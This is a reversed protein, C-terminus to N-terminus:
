ELQNSNTCKYHSLLIVRIYPTTHEKHSNQGDHHATAYHQKNNLSNQQVFHKNDKTSEAELCLHVTLNHKVAHWRTVMFLYEENNM